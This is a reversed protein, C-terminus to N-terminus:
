NWTVREGMLAKRHRRTFWDNVRLAVDVLYVCAIAFFFLREVPHM